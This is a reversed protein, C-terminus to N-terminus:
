ACRQSQWLKIHSLHSWGFAFDSNGHTDLHALRDRAELLTPRHGEEVHWMVFHHSQMASFWEAKRNYFRKHVTNWVFHELHEASEWVTLNAAAGPWPTPIHMAHGTDDKHMWVYGPMTAALGNIRELNDMFDAIRPDDLPYKPVAINLEALHMM